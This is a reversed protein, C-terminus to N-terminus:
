PSPRKRFLVLSDQDYVLTWNPSKIVSDIFAKLQSPPLPWPNPDGRLLVYYEAVTDGPFFAHYMKYVGYDFHPALRTVAAVSSGPPIKSLAANIKRYNYPSTYHSAQYFRM